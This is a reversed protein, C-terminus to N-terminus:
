KQFTQITPEKQNIIIQKKTKDYITVAETSEIRGSFLINFEITKTTLKKKKTGAWYNLRNRCNQRKTHKLEQTVTLKQAELRVASIFRM